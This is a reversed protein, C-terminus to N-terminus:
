RIASLTEGSARADEASWFSRAAVDQMEIRTSM